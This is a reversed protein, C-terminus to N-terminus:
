DIILGGYVPIPSRRRLRDRSIVRVVFDSGQWQAGLPLPKRSRCNVGHTMLAAPGITPIILFAICKNASANKRLVQLYTLFFARHPRRLVPFKYNRNSCEYFYTSRYRFFFSVSPYQSSSMSFTSFM